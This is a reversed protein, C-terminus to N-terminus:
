NELSLGFCFIVKVNSVQHSFTEFVDQVEHGITTAQQQLAM